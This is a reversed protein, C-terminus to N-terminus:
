LHVLVHLALPSLQTLFCDVEVNVLLKRPDVAVRRVDLEEVADHLPDGLNSFLVRVGHQLLVVLDPLVDEVGQEFVRRM